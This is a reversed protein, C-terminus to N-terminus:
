YGPRQQSAEKQNNILSLHKKARTDSDQRQLKRRIASTTQRQQQVVQGEGDKLKIKLALEESCSIIELIILLGEKGSGIVIVKSNPSNALELTAEIGRM